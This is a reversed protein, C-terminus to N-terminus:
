NLTFKFFFCWVVGTIKIADRNVKEDDNGAVKPLRQRITQIECVFCIRNVQRHRHCHHRYHHHHFHCCWRYDVAPRQRLLAVSPVMSVAMITSWIYPRHPRMLAAEVAEYKGRHRHNALWVKIWKVGCESWIQQSRRNQLSRLLFTICFVSNYKVICLCNTRLGIFTKERAFCICYKKEQLAYVINLINSICTHIISHIQIIYIYISVRERFNLLSPM